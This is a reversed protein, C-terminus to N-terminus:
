IKFEGRLAPSDRLPFKNKKSRNHTKELIQLNQHVHLGCGYKSQIPYIHDVEHLVGTKETLKKAEAYIARIAVRDRWAPMALVLAVYRRQAPTEGLLRRATREAEMAARREMTETDFCEACLEARLLAASRRNAGHQMQPTGCEACLYPDRWPGRKIKPAKPKSISIDLLKMM